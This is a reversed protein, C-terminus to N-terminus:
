SKLKLWEQQLKEFPIVNSLRNDTAKHSTHKQNLDFTNRIWAEDIENSCYILFFSHKEHFSPVIPLEANHDNTADFEKKFAQDPHQDKAETIGWDILEDTNWDGALIEQDWEGYSANDKVIFEKKEEETWGILRIVEIETIGAQQCAKFRMNGGLVTNTEDVVIPRVDLMQEFSKISKVLKRFKETRIYRPNKENSKVDKINLRVHETKKQKM